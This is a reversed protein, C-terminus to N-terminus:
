YVEKLIGSNCTRKLLVVNRTDFHVNSYPNSGNIWNAKHFEGFSGKILYEINRFEDIPIWQIYDDCNTATLKCEYLFRAIEKNGYKDTLKEIEKEKCGKCVM